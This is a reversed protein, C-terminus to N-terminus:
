PYALEQSFTVFNEQDDFEVNAWGPNLPKLYTWVGNGDVQSPPGLMARVEDRSMGAKLQNVLAAPIVPGAIEVFAIQAAIVMVLVAATAILMQRPSFRIPCFNFGHM